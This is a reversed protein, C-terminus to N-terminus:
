FITTQLVIKSSAPAKVVYGCLVDPWATWLTPIGRPNPGPAFAIADIMFPQGLNTLTATDYVTTEVMFNGQQVVSVQSIAQVDYQGRLDLKPWHLVEEDTTRQVKLDAAMEVWEGQIVRTADEPDVMSADTVEYSKLWMRSWDPNLIKFDKDM